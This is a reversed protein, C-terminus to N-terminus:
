DELPQWWRAQEKCDNQLFYLSIYTGLPTSHDRLQDEIYQIAIPNAFIREERVQTKDESYTVSESVMHMRLYEKLEEDQVNRFGRWKVGKEPITRVTTHVFM